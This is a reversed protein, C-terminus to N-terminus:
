SPTPSISIKELERIDWELEFYRVVQPNDDFELGLLTPAGVIPQKDLDLMPGNQVVTVGITTGDLNAWILKQNPVLAKMEISTM